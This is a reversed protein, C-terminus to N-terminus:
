RTRSGQVKAQPYQRQRAAIMVNETRSHTKVTRKEPPKESAPVSYRSPYRVKGEHTRAVVMMQAYTMRHEFRTSRLKAIERRSAEIKTVEGTKAIDSVISHLTRM